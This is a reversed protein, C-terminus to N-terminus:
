RGVEKKVINGRAFSFGLEKKGEPLGVAGTNVTEEELEPV